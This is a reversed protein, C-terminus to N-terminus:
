VLKVIEFYLVASNSYVEDLNVFDSIVMSICGDFGNQVQVGQAVRVKESVGGLYLNTRLNLGTLSGPSNGTVTEEDNIKMEAAQNTREVRIKYWTDLRLEVMSRLVAHGSGTDFRLELSRDKIALSFFDDLGNEGAGAYLIIGDDSSRAKFVLDM